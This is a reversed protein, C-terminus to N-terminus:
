IEAIAFISTLSRPLLPSPFFFFVLHTSMPSLALNFTQNSDNLVYEVGTRKM